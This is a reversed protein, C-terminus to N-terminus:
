IYYNVLHKFYKWCKNYEGQQTVNWDSLGLLALIYCRGRVECSLLVRTHPILNCFDLSWASCLPLFSANASVNVNESGFSSLVIGVIDAAIVKFAQWTSMGLTVQFILPRWSLEMLIYIWKLFWKVVSDSKNTSWTAFFVRHLIIAAGIWLTLGVVANM